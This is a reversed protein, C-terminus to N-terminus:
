TDATECVGRKANVSALLVSTDPYPKATKKPAKFVSIKVVERIASFQRNDASADGSFTPNPDCQEDVLEVVIDWKGTKAPLKFECAVTLEILRGTADLAFGPSISVQQGNGSINLGKIVGPEFQARNHQRLKDLFYGQEQRFDDVSLLQGHLYNLRKLGPISAVELPKAANTKM